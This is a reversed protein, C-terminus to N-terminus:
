STSPGTKRIISKSFKNKKWISQLLENRLDTTTLLLIYPGLSYLCDIVPYSIDNLSLILHDYHRDQAYFTLAQCISNLLLTTFLITSILSLKVHIKTTDNTQNKLYEQTHFIKQENWMKIAVIVIYIYIVSCIVASVICSAGDVLATLTTTVDDYTLRITGSSSIGYNM